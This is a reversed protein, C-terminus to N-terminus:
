ALTPGLGLVQHPTTHSLASSPRVQVAARRRSPSATPGTFFLGSTRRSPVTIAPDLLSSSPHRTWKSRDSSPPRVNTRAGATWRAGSVAPPARASPAMEAM